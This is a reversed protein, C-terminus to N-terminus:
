ITWIRPSSKRICWRGFIDALRNLADAVQRQAEAQEALATAVMANLARLQTEISRLAGHENADEDYEGPGIEFDKM